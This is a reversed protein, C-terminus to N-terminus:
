FSVNVGMRADATFTEASDYGIEFGATFQTGGHSTFVAEAGGFGRVISDEDGTAFALNNGLLSSNVDDGWNFIGDVGGKIQTHWFGSEVEKTALALALEGRVEVVHVDRDGVALAAASGSEEYGDLYLGAYRVRVSPTLMSGGIGQDVGVKLSPSFLFGGYEATATELGGAVQNNGVLRETDNMVVGATVSLDFFLGSGTVHSLYAGGYATLMDNYFAENPTTVEGKAFGGFLGGTTAVSLARDYGVVLGGFGHESGSTADTAQMDSYGGHLSGWLGTGCTERMQVPPLDAVPSVSMDGMAVRNDGYCARQAALHGEVSGTISRTLDTVVEDTVAFGTPDVVALINGIRVANGADALAMGNVNITAPVGTLAHYTNLGPGVNLRATGASTFRIGGQIVSGALLNLTANTGEMRIADANLSIISGSNSIKANTSNVTSWIGFATIRTTSISGSNSIEANPRNSYIGYAFSGMTSISGSNSVQADAGNSAIGRGNIGTTSISGSNSIQANAGESFIGHALFGMTSISGSNRVEADAGQSWIGYASDGTTSISGANTTTQDSNQMDVGPIGATNVTGGQEILLTDGVNPLTVTATVPPGSEVVIDDALAAGTLLLGAVAVGGYLKVRLATKM